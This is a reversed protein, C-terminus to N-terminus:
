ANLANRPKKMAFSLSTPVTRTMEAVTTVNERWATSDREANLLTKALDAHKTPVFRDWHVTKTPLANWANTFPLMANQKTAEQVIMTWRVVTKVNEQKPAINGLEM